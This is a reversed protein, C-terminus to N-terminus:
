IVCLLAWAWFAVVGIALASWVAAVTWDIRKM